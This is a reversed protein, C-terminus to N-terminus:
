SKPNPSIRTSRLATLQATKETADRFSRPDEPGPFLVKQTMARPHSWVDSSKTKLSCTRSGTAREPTTQVLRRKRPIKQV